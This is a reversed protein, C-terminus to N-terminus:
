DSSGGDKPLIAGATDLEGALLYRAECPLALFAGGLAALAADCASGSSPMVEILHEANLDDSAISDGNAADDPSAPTESVVGDDIRRAVKGAVTQKRTLACARGQQRKLDFDPEGSLFDSPEEPQARPTAQVVQTDSLTFRFRGNDSLTGSTSSAKDPMWYAVGSDIRLEVVFDFTAASPLASQGCTNEVLVGRVAYSGVLTGPKSGQDCASLGLWAASCLAWTPPGRM